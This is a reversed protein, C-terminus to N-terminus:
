MRYIDSLFVPVSLMDAGAKPHHAKKLHHALALKDGPPSKFSFGAKEPPSESIIQQIRVWGL